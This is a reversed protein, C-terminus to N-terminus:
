KLSILILAFILIFQSYYSGFFEILYLKFSSNIILPISSLFVCAFSMGIISIRSFEFMIKSKKLLQNIDERNILRISKPSVLGSIMEFPKMYSQSENKYYKWYHLLQTFLALSAFLVSTMNFFIEEM